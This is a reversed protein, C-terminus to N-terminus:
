TTDVFITDAIVEHEHAHEVLACYFLISALALVEM